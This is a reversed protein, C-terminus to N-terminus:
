ASPPLKPSIGMHMSIGGVSAKGPKAFILLELDALSDEHHISLLIWLFPVEVKTLIDCLVM